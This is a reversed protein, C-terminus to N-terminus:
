SCTAYTEHQTHELETDCGKAQEQLEVPVRQVSKGATKKQLGRINHIHNDIEKNQWTRLPHKRRYKRARTM